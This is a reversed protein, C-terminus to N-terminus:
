DLVSLFNTKTIFVLALFFSGDVCYFLLVLAQVDCGVKEHCDGMPYVGRFDKELQDNATGQGGYNKSQAGCEGKGHEEGCIWQDARENM